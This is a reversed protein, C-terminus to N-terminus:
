TLWTSKKNTYKKKHSIAYVRLSWLLLSRSKCDHSVGITCYNIVPVNKLGRGKVRDGAALDLRLSVIVLLVAPQAPKRSTAHTCCKKRELRSAEVLLDRESRNVITHVEVVICTFRHLPFAEERREEKRKNKKQQFEWGCSLTAKSSLLLFQKQKM